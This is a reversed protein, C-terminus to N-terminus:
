RIIDYARGLAALNRHYADGYECWFGLAEKATMERGNVPFTMPTFWQGDSLLTSGEHGVYVVSTDTESEITEEEIFADAIVRNLKTVNLKDTVSKDTVRKATVRCQVSCYVADSRKAEFESGCQKCKM